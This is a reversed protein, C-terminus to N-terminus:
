PGLPAGNPLAPGTMTHPTAARSLQNFDTAHGPPAPSQWEGGGGKYAFAKQPAHTTKEDSPEFQFSRPHPSAADQQDRDCPTAAGAPGAHPQPGSGLYRNPLMSTMEDNRSPYSSGPM